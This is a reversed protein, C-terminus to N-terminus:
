EEKISQIKMAEKRGEKEENRIEIPKGKEVKRKTKRKMESYYEGFKDEEIISTSTICDLCLLTKYYLILKLSPNLSKM